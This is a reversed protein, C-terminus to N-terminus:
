LGLQRAIVLRQVESTGEYISTIRADRYLREVAYDKTYGYGGHVQLANHAARICAESAYLKAMAAYRTFPVGRDKMDAAQYVLLRAAQVETAIDAIRWQIPQLEAIPRGFQERQKAYLAAEELARQAIGVAQAGIGIRGGDLTGLGIALGKGLDGLQSEAPVRVDEFVIEWTDSSRIGLKHEKVGLSLGPTERPVIFASLGRGRKAKRDTLAIVVYLGAVSGNTAWLKTGNLVWEDGERVAATEVGAADSGAQAESLCFAAIRRGSALDPLWRARQEPTGHDMIPGAGVSNHVAISVGMSADVRSLEEVAIAYSVNDVACGGHEQPIILGYLGLAGMQPVLDKPYEESEDREQVTPGLEGEAFSRVTTRIMEQAKTPTFDM